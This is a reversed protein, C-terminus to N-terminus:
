SLRRMRQQFRGGSEIFSAAAMMTATLRHIPQGGRVLIKRASRDDQFTCEYEDEFDSRKYRAVYERIEAQFKRQEFTGRRKAESM